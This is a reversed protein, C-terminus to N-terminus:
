LLKSLVGVASTAMLGLRARLALARSAASSDVHLNSYRGKNVVSESYACGQEARFCQQCNEM